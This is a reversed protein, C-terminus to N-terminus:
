SRKWTEQKGCGNVSFSETQRCWVDACRGGAGIMGTGQKACELLEGNDVSNFGM